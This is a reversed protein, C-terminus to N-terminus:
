SNFPTDLSSTISQSQVHIERYVTLCACLKSTKMHKDHNKILQYYLILITLLLKKLM